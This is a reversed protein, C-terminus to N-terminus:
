ARPHAPTSRATAPVVAPWGPGTRGAGDTASISGELRTLAPYTVTENVTRVAVGGDPWLDVLSIGAPDLFLRRLFKDSAALADQADVQDAHRPQGRGGDTRPYM